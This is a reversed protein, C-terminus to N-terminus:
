SFFFFPAFLFLFLKPDLLVAVFALHLHAAWHCRAAAAVSMLAGVTPQASTFATPTTPRLRRYTLLLLPLLLLM